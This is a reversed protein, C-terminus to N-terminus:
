NHTRARNRENIYLDFGAKVVIGGVALYMLRDFGLGLKEGLDRTDRSLIKTAEQITDIKVNLTGM